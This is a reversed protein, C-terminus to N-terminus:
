HSGHKEWAEFLTHKFLKDLKETDPGVIQGLSKVYDSFYKIKSELFDNLVQIKPEESLEEGAM